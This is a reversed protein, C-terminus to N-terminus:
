IGIGVISAYTKGKMNLPRPYIGSVANVLWQTIRKLRITGLKWECVDVLIWRGQICGLSRPTAYAWQGLQTARSCPQQKLCAITPIITTQWTALESGPLQRLVTRGGALFLIDVCESLWHHIWTHPNTWALWIETPRIWLAVGTLIRYSCAGDSHWGSTEFREDEHTLRPAEVM